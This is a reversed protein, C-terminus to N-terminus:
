RQTMPWKRDTIAGETVRGRPRHHKANSTIICSARASSLPRAVVGGTVGAEWSRWVEDDDNVHGQGRGVLVIVEQDTKAIGVCTSGVMLGMRVRQSGTHKRLHPEPRPVLEYPDIKAVAAGLGHQRTHSIASAM